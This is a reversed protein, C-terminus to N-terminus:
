SRNHHGSVQTLTIPVAQHPLSRVSALIESIRGHFAEPLLLLEIARQQSCYTHLVHTLFSPHQHMFSHLTERAAEEAPSLPPGTTKVVQGEVAHLGHTLSCVCM